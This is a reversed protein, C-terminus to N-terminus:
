CPDNEAGPTAPEGTSLVVTQQACWHSRDDNAGSDLHSPDVGIAVGSDFWDDDYYLWDIEAGDPRMLVVEDPGNALALGPTDPDRLFWGDCPVGGNVAPNLDACLVFYDHPEVVMSGELVWYDYDDDRFTYGAIEIPYGATNYLEVWEGVEDAVAEPNIMMESFVLDGPEADIPDEVLPEGVTLEISDTGIEGDTDTVTLTITHTGDSLADTVLVSRGDASLEGSLPGDVSSDWAFALEDASTSADSAEGQFTIAQMPLFTSGSAPDTIQVMPAGLPGWVELEVMADGQDGDSDIALLRVTHPGFGLADIDLDLTVTGDAQATAEGLPVEDLEWTLQLEEPLDHKDWVTGLLPVPGEGQRQVGDVAELTVEPPSPIIAVGQDSKCGTLALAALATLAPALM